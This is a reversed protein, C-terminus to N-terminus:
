VKSKNFDPFIDKLKYDLLIPNITFDWFHAKIFQEMLIIDEKDNIM